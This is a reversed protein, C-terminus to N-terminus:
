RKWCLGGSTRIKLWFLGSQATGGYIKSLQILIMRGDICLAEWQDKEEANEWRFATNIEGRVICAVPWVWRM